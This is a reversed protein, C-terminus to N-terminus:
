GCPSEFEVRLDLGLRQLALALETAQGHSHFEMIELQDPRVRVELFSQEPTAAPGTTM